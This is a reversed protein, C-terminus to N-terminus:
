GDYAIRQMLIFLCFDKLRISVLMEALHKTSKRPEGARPEDVCGLETM